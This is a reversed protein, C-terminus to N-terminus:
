VAARAGGPGPSPELGLEADLGLAFALDVDLDVDAEFTADIGTSGARAGAGAGAGAFVKVGLGSDIRAGAAEDLVLRGGMAINAGGPGTRPLLRTTTGQLVGIRAPARGEGVTATVVHTRLDVAFGKVTVAARDGKSFRVGGDLAVKGGLLERGGHAIRGGDRAALGVAGPAPQVAGEVPAVAVGQGAPGLAAGLDLRLLGARIPTGPAPAGAEAGPPAKAAEQRTVSGFVSTVADPLAAIAAPTAIVVAAAVAASIRGRGVRRPFSM